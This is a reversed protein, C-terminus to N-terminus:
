RTSRGAKRVRYRPVLSMGEGTAAGYRAAQRSATVISSYIFLFRGTELIGFLLLLLVPLAIAFEVMAQARTKGPVIKNIKM